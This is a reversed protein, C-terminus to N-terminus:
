DNGSVVLSPVEEEEEKSNDEKDENNEDGETLLYLNKPGRKAQSQFECKIGRHLCYACPPGGM